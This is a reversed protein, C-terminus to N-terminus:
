FILFFFVIFVLVRYVGFPIFNNKQVYKILFKIALISVIFASLLGYGLHQINEKSIIQPTKILDLASAGFLVPVALLFSFKVITSRPIGLALGGVITAASRSIGPIVALSQFIGIFFSQKYTIEGIDEQSVDPGKYFLEFIILFIGGLLLSFLVIKESGLLESKIIRYFGFGIIMTPISGAIIKKLHSKNLFDRWFLILVAIMAGLQIVITFSKVFEDNTLNLLKSTLIIHGTSSVPLFETLGEVVGLIIADLFEM